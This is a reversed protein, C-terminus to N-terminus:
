TGADPFTIQPEWAKRSLEAIPAGSVGSGAYVQWEIDQICGFVSVDSENRMQYTLGDVHEYTFAVDPLGCARVYGVKRTSSDWTGDPNEESVCTDREGVIKLEVTYNGPVEY